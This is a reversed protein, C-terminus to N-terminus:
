ASLFLLASFFLPKSIKLSKLLLPAKLFMPTHHWPATYIHHLYIDQMSLCYLRWDNDLLADQLHHLPSIHYLHVHQMFRYFFINSILQSNNMVTYLYSVPLISTELNGCDIVLGTTTGTTLLAMLHTPVFCISPVQFHHFLLDALTSKLAIPALPSETLVVKRSKPDTLLLRCCIFVWNCMMLRYMMKSWYRYYIDHLLRKLKEELQALDSKMM